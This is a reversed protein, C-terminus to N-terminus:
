WDWRWFGILNQMLHERAQECLEPEIDKREMFADIQKASLAFGREVYYDEHPCFDGIIDNLPSRAMTKSQHWAAPAMVFLEWRENVPYTTNQVAAQWTSVMMEGQRLYAEVLQHVAKVSM